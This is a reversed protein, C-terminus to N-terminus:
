ASWDAGQEGRSDGWSPVSSFVGFPHAPRGILLPKFQLPTVLEQGEGIVRNFCASALCQDVAALVRVVGAKPELWAPRQHQLTIAGVVEQGVKTDPASRPALGGAEPGIALKASSAKSALAPLRM